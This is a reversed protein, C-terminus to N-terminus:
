NAVELGGNLYIDSQKLQEVKYILQPFFSLFDQELLAYNNELEIGAGHLNTPRRFRHSMRDLVLGVGATTHYVSLWDQEVMLAIVRAMKDPCYGQYCSLDRYLQLIFAQRPIPSFQQWHRSLFHDYSVDLIIGALRRRFPGIRGKSCIFDDHQDTFADIKRHLWVGQRLAIPWDKNLPGRHFDGMLNGVRSEPTNEAFLLHALYNLPQTELASNFAADVIGTTFIYDGSSENPYLLFGKLTLCITCLLLTTIIISM